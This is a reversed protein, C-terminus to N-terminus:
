KTPTAEPGITVMDKLKAFTKEGIGKVKMLDEIRKFPGFEKRYDIIRQAVKPGVRPLKDLEAQSATNINIKDAAATTGAQLGLLPILLVAAALALALGKPHITKM